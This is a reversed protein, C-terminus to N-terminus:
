AKAASRRPDPVFLYLLGAALLGAAFLLWVPTFAKPSAVSAIEAPMFAGGAQILVAPGLMNFLNIGTMATGAMERPCLERVHAYAVNGPASFFGIALFLALYVPMPAGHGLRSLLIFLLATLILAPSIVRKRSGFTVDSLRGSLPLGAIYGLSCAMLANGAQVPSLGHGYILFPGALLGQLSMFAGFRFFIALNIIWFWPKTWLYRLNKWADKLGPRDHERRLAAQPLDRVFWILAAIQAVNLAAVAAFAGRWGMGSALWALPTAALVMGGTGVATLAGALTAFREAPFWTALIAYAGMLNCAMGLGMLGRGLIAQQYSQSASFILAGCVAVLGLAVMVLRAGVRDLAPGSPIQLAAFAYFFASSLASLQVANLDLDSALDPSIVTASVRYFMSIFFGWTIVVFIMVGRGSRAKNM